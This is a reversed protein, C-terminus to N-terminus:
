PETKFDEGSFLKQNIIKFKELISFSKVFKRPYVTTAGSFCYKEREVGVAM